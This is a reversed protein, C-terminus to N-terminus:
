RFLGIGGKQGQVVTTREQLFGRIFEREGKTYPRKFIAIINNRLINMIVYQKAMDDIGFEVHFITIIRTIDDLTQNSLSYVENDSMNSLYVGKHSIASLLTDILIQIGYENLLPTKKIAKQQSPDYTYGYFKAILGLIEPSSDLM